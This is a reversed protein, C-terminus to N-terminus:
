FLTTGEDEAKLYSDNFLDLYKTNSDFVLPTGYGARLITANLFVFTGLHGSENEKLETIYYSPFDIDKLHSNPIIEYWVYALLRGDRSIRTRDFELRVMKNLILNGTFKDCEAGLEDLVKGTLGTRKIYNYLSMGELRLPSSVGILNVEKGDELILTNFDIVGVVQIHHYLDKKEEANSPLTFFVFLFFFILYKANQNM